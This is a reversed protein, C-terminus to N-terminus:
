FKEKSERSKRCKKEHSTAYLPSNSDDTFSYAKSIRLATIETSAKGIKKKM